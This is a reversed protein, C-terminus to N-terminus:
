ITVAWAAAVAVLGAVAARLVRPGRLARALAPGARAVAVLVGLKAVTLAVWLWDLVEEHTRARSLIRPSLVSTPDLRPPRLDPVRTRWLLVAAVIWAAAALIAGGIRIATKESMWPFRCASSATSCAISSSPGSASQHRPSM